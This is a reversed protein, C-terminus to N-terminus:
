IMSNYPPGFSTLSYVSGMQLSFLTLSQRPATTPLSPEPVLSGVSEQEVAQFGQAPDKVETPRLKRIQLVLFVEASM